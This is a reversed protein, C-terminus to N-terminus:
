PFLPKGQIKISDFLSSSPLSEKKESSLEKVESPSPEPLQPQPTIEACAQLVKRLNPEYPAIRAVVNGHALPFQVRLESLELWQNNEDIILCSADPHEAIIENVPDQGSLLYLHSGAAMVLAAPSKRIIDICEAGALSSLQELHNNYNTLNSKINIPNKNNLRVLLNVQKNNQIFHVGKDSNPSDFATATVKLEKSEVLCTAEIDIVQQSEGEFKAESKLIRADTMPDKTESFQWEIGIDKAIKPGIQAAKQINDASEKKAKDKAAQVKRALEEADAKKKNEEQVVKMAAQKTLADVRALDNAEIQDITKAVNIIEEYKRVLEAEDLQPCESKLKEQDALLNILANAYKKDIHSLLSIYRKGEMVEQKSIKSQIKQYFGMVKTDLGRINAEPDGGRNVASDFNERWENFAFQQRGECSILNMSFDVGIKRIYNKADILTQLQSNEINSGREQVQSPQTRGNGRTSPTALQSEAVPIARVSQTTSPTATPPTPTVSPAAPPTTSAQSVAPVNTQASPVIPQTSSISPAIHVATSAQQTRPISPQASSVPTAPPLPADLSDQAPAAAVAGSNGQILSLQLAQQAAQQIKPDDASAVQKQLFERTKNQNQSFHFTLAYCAVAERQQGQLAYVEALNAWSAARGPALSLATSFAKLAAKLDGTKLYAFGLNGSYEANAPDLQYASQFQPKALEPQGAKIADLGKANAEKAKQTDGRAPKPLAAIQQKLVNLEETRGVGGNDATIAIMQKLLSIASDQATVTSIPLSGFVLVLLLFFLSFLPLPRHFMSNAESKKCIKEFCHFLTLM